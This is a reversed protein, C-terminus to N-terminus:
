AELWLARGAFGVVGGPSPSTWNSEALRVRMEPRRARSGFELAAVVRTSPEVNRTAWVVSEQNARDLAGAM